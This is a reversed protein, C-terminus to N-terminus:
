YTDISIMVIDIEKTNLISVKIEPILISLGKKEFNNLTSIIVIKYNLKTM